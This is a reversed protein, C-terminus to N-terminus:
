DMRDGGLGFETFVNPSNYVYCGTTVRFKDFADLYTIVFQVFLPKGRALEAEEAETLITETEHATVAREAGPAITM